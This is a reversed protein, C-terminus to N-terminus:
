AMNVRCQEKGAKQARIKGQASLDAGHAPVLVVLFLVKKFINKM